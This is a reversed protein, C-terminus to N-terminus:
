KSATYYPIISIMMLPHNLDDHIVQQDLVLSVYKILKNLQSVDTSAPHGNGPVDTFPFLNDGKGLVFTSDVKEGGTYM